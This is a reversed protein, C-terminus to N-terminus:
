LNGCTVPVTPLENGIIEGPKRHLICYTGFPTIVKSVPRGDGLIHVEHKYSERMVTSSAQVATAFKEMAAPAVKSSVQDRYKFDKKLSNFIGRTDRNVLADAGSDAEAKEVPLMTHPKGSVMDKDPESIASSQRSVLPVRIQPSPATIDRPPRSLPTLSPLKAPEPQKLFILSAAQTLEDKHMVKLQPWLLYLGMHLLLVGLVIRLESRQISLHHPIALM